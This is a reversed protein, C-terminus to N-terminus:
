NKIRAKEGMVSEFYARMVGIRAYPLAMLTALNEGTFPIVDGSEDKVDEWGVVVERLIREDAGGGLTTGEDARMEEMLSEIRAQPLIQFTCTFQEERIDGGDAPVQVTVPWAYSHDKKLVFM